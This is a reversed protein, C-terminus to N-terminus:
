SDESFAVSAGASPSSHSFFTLVSQFFEHLNKHVNSNFQFNYGYKIILAEYLM